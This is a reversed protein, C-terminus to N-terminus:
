LKTSLWIAFSTAGKVFWRLVRYLGAGEGGHRVAHDEHAEEDRRISEVAALAEPDQSALVAVQHDLHGNVTNEIAATCVWIAREGLLSTISGLMWGGFMWFPLAYCRRIGRAKLLVDFTQFHRLEHTLMESLAPVCQPHLVRAIAIQSRYIRIAGCEGAHDVRLIREASPVGGISQREHDAPVNGAPSVRSTHQSLNASFRKFTTFDM